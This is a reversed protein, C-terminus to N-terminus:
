SAYMGELKDYPLVVLNGGFIQLKSFFRFTKADFKVYLCALDKALAAKPPGKGLSLGLFDM